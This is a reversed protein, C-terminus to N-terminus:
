EASGGKRGLIADEPLALLRAGPFLKEFAPKQNTLCVAVNKRNERDKVHALYDLLHRRKALDNDVLVTVFTDGREYDAFPRGCPAARFRSRVLSYIEDRHKLIGVGYPYPLLLLSDLGCHGDGFAHLAEASRYFVVARSLRIRRLKGIETRISRLTSERPHKALLYLAYRVGNRSIVANFRASRDVDRKRKYELAFQFEWADRLSLFIGAVLSQNERQWDQRMQVSRQGPAVVRLGASLIEVYSGKRILYGRKELIGVRKRHGDATGFLHRIQEMGLVRCRSLLALLDVDRETLEPKRGLLGGGKSSIGVTVEAREDDRGSISVQGANVGDSHVLGLVGSM